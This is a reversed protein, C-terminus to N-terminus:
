ARSRTASRRGTVSGAAKASSPLSSADSHTQRQPLSEHADGLAESEAGLVDGLGVLDLRLAELLQTRAEVPTMTCKELFPWSYPTPLCCAAHSREGRIM